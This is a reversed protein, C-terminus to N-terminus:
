AAPAVLTGAIDIVFRYRVDGMELREYAKNIEDMRIMEVDCTIGHAACFDLMDQTEAIGGINSTALTKRGPMMTLTNLAPEIAGVLGVIILVGSFGLTMMYPNLDHANPATDVIFDFRGTAAAMQAPDSSVITDDAGLRLAETEKAASRTFVTVEAGLAKAFKVAMHGLGGLGVVGVKHGPGIRWQRLPAYTTIGACLLPAASSPDLGEPLRLVYKESAIIQQSYGGYTPQGDVRDVGGYTPTPYRLCYNEHGGECPSCHRCSDVICGVGVLDGAGFGTVEAGVARVRGIIEHGPVLPYRSFGWDNRAAHLDSHCVGCYLIDIVVDDARPDRPAFTFPALAETASPAAYAHVLNSM